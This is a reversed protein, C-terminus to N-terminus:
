RGRWPSTWSPRAGWPSWWRWGRPFGPRAARPRLYENFYQQQRGFAIGFDFFLRAGGDELLLKNGGIENVGGYCTITTAASRAAPSTASM